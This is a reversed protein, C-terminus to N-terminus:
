RRMMGRRLQVELRLRLAKPPVPWTMVDTAGLAFARLCLDITPQPTLVVAPAACGRQQLTHLTALEDPPGMSGLVVVVM